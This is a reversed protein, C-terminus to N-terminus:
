FDRVDVMMSGFSTKCRKLHEVCVCVCGLLEKVRLDKLRLKIM